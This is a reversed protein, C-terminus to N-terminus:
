REFTRSMSSLPDEGVKEGNVEATRALGLVGDANRYPKPEDATVPVSRPTM